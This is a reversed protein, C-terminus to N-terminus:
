SGGPPRDPRDGQDIATGGDGITQRRAEAVATRVQEETVTGLVVLQGRDPDAHVREVGTLDRVRASVIRVIRRGTMWPVCITILTMHTM